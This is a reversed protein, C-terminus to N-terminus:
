NKPATKIMEVANNDLIGDDHLASVVETLWSQCNKIEVRTGRAREAASVLSPGPPPVRAAVTEVADQPESDAGNVGNGPTDILLDARVDGVALVEHKRSEERIDYNRDFSLRFGAAADGEAHIRKGVNADAASPVWLAWHAPFLPSKYVILYITKSM